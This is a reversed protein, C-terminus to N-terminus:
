GVEDGTGGVWKLGGRLAGRLAGRLEGRLAGRLAECHRGESACRRLHLLAPLPDVVEGLRSVLGLLAQGGGLGGKLGGGRRVLLLHRVEGLIAVLRALGQGAADGGRGGHRRRVEVLGALLDVVEDLIAVLVTVGRPGLQRLHHRAGRALLLGALPPDLLEHGLGGRGLLAGAAADDVKGGLEVRHAALHDTHLLRSGRAGLLLDLALELERAIAVLGPESHRGSAGLDLRQLILHGLGRRGVRGVRVDELLSRRRQLHRRLVGRRRESVLRRLDLPQRALELLRAALRPVGDDGGVTRRPGLLGGLPLQGLECELAVPETLLKFRAAM